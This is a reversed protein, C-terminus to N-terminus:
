AELLQSFQLPCSFLIPANSRLLLAVIVYQLRLTSLKLGVLLWHLSFKYLSGLVLLNKEM